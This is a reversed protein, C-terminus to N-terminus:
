DEQAELKEVRHRLVSLYKEQTANHNEVKEARQRFMTAEARDLVRLKGLREVKTRLKANAELENTFQEHLDVYLPHNTPNSLREVEDALASLCERARTLLCEMCGGCAHTHDEAVQVPRSCGPSGDIADALLHAREVLKSSM